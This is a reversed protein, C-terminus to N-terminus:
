CALIHCGGAETCHPATVEKGGGQVEEFVKSVVADVVVRMTQNVGSMGQDVYRSNCKGNYEQGESEEIQDRTDVRLAITVGYGTWSLHSEHVRNSYIGVM